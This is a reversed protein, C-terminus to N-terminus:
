EEHHIECIIETNKYKMSRKIEYKSICEKCHCYLEFTKYEVLHLKKLTNPLLEICFPEKEYYYIEEINSPIGNELNYKLSETNLYVVKLTESLKKLDIVVSTMFKLYELNPPYNQIQYDNIMESNTEFKKLGYPLNIFEGSYIFNDIVIEELGKPFNIFDGDYERIHIKKLSAPLMTLNVNSNDDIDLDENYDNSDNDDDVDDLRRYNDIILTELNIPLNTYDGNLSDVQLVQLNQPLKTFIKSESDFYKIKFYKIHEPLQFDYKIKINDNHNITIELYEVTKPLKTIVEEISQCDMNVLTVYKVGDGFKINYKVIKYITSLEVGICYKNFKISNYSCYYRDYYRIFEYQKMKNIYNQDVQNQIYNHKHRIIENYTMTKPESEIINPTEPHTESDSM